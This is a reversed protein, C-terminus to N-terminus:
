IIRFCLFPRRRQWISRVRLAVVVVINEFLLYSDKKRVLFLITTMTSHACHAAYFITMISNNRNATIGNVRSNVSFMSISFVIDYMTAHVTTVSCHATHIRSVASVQPSKLPELVYERIVDLFITLIKRTRTKSPRGLRNRKKKQKYKTCIELVDCKVYNTPIKITIIEAIAASHVSAVAPFTKTDFKKAM